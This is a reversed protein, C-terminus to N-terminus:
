ERKEEQVFLNAVQLAQQWYELRKAGGTQQDFVFIHKWERTRNCADRRSICIGLTIDALQQM